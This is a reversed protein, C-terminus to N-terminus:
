ECKLPPKVETQDPDPLSDSSDTEAPKEPEGYACFWDNPFWNSFTPSFENECCVHCGSKGGFGYKCDKCQTVEIVPQSKIDSLTQKLVTKSTIGNISDWDWLCNEIEYLLTDVNILRM